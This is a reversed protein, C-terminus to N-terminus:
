IFFRQQRYTDQQIYICQTISTPQLRPRELGADLLDTSGNQEFKWLGITRAIHSLPKEIKTLPRRIEKLQNEPATSPSVYTHARLLDVGLPFQDQYHARRDPGYYEITV